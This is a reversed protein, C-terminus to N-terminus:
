PSRADAPLSHIAFDSFQLIAFGSFQIFLITFYQLVRFNFSYYLSTNCVRFNFDWTIGEWGFRRDKQTTLPQWRRAAIKMASEPRSFLLKWIWRGKCKRCCFCILMACKGDAYHQDFKDWNDRVNDFQQKLELLQPLSLSDIPIQQMGEPNGHGEDAMSPSEGQADVSNRHMRNKVAGFPRFHIQRPAQRLVNDSCCIGLNLLKGLLQFADILIQNRWSGYTLTQQTQVFALRSMRTKWLNHLFTM